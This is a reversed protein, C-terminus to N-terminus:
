TSGSLFCDSVAFFYRTRRSSSLSLSIDSQIAVSSLSRACDPSIFSAYLSAFALSSLAWLLRSASYADDSFRLPLIRSFSMSTSFALALSEASSAFTASASAAAAARRALISLLSAAIARMFFSMASALSRTSSTLPFISRLLLRMASISASNISSASLALDAEFTMSPQRIFSSDLSRAYRSSSSFVDLSLTSVLLRSAFIM